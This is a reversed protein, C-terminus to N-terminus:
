DTYIVYNDENIIKFNKGKYAILTDKDDEIKEIGEALKITENTSIILHYLSNNRTYYVNDSAGMFGNAIIYQDYKLEIKEKEDTNENEIITSEKYPENEKPKNDVQSINNSKKNQLKDKSQNNIISIGFIFMILCISIIILIKKKM